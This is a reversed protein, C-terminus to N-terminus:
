LGRYYIATIYPPGYNHGWLASHRYDRPRSYLSDNYESGWLSSHSSYKLTRCVTDQFIAARLLLRIPISYIPLGINIWYLSGKASFFSPGFTALKLLLEPHGRFNWYLIGQSKWTKWIIKKRNGPTKSSLFNENKFLLELVSGIGSVSEFFKWSM